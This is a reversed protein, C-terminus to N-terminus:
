LNQLVSFLKPILWRKSGNEVVCKLHKFNMTCFYLFILILLQVFKHKLTQKNTKLLVRRSVSGRARAHRTTASSTSTTPWRSSRPSGGATWTSTARGRRSRRLHSKRWSRGSTSRGATRSGSRWRRSSVCTLCQCRSAHFVTLEARPRNPNNNSKSM